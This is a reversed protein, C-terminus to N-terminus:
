ESSRRNQKKCLINDSSNSLKKLNKAIELDNHPVVTTNYIYLLRCTMMPHSISRKVRQVPASTNEFFCYVVEDATLYLSNLRFQYKCATYSEDLVRVVPKM